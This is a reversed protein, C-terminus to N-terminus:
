TKKLRNRGKRSEAPPQYDRRPRIRKTRDRKDDASTGNEVKTTSPAETIGFFSQPLSSSLNLNMVQHPNQETRLFEIAGQSACAAPLSASGYGRSGEGVGSDPDINAPKRM